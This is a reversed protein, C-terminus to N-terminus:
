FCMIQDIKRAGIEGKGNNWIAVWPDVEVNGKCTPVDPTVSESFLHILNRDVMMDKRGLSSRVVKERDEMRFFAKEAYRGAIKVQDGQVALAADFVLEAGFEECVDDALDARSAEILAFVVARQQHVDVIRSLADRALEAIESNWTESNELVDSRQSLVAEAVRGGKGIADVIEEQDLSRILESSGSRLFLPAEEGVVVEPDIDWYRRLLKEGSGENMFQAYDDLYPLIEMLWEPSLKDAANVADEITSSRLLKGEEGPLRHLVYGLTREVARAKNSQEKEAFLRCLEAFRARGGSIDGGARWIFRRFEPNPKLLDSLCLNVWVEREVVDEDQKDRPGMGVSPLFQVDFEHHATSRDEHTLSCFRFSRRLRPWQQGWVALLTADAEEQNGVKMLVKQNPSAYLRVILERALDTGVPPCAQEDGIEAVVPVSYRDNEGELMPRRFCRLLKRPDDIEALETFSILLSHTWICGPRSIEPADWTKALVYLGEDALPYGTLYGSEPIRKASISRDSFQLLSHRSRSEVLRSSALVRHGREYGLLAQHIEIQTLSM